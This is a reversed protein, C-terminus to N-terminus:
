HKLLFVGGAHRVCPHVPCPFLAIANIGAHIARVQGKEHTEDCKM